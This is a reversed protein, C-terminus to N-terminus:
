HWFYLYCRILRILRSSAKTLCRFVSLQQHLRKVKLSIIPLSVRGADFDRERRVLFRKFMHLINESQGSHKRRWGEPSVPAYSGRAEWLRRRRRWLDRYLDSKSTSLKSKESPYWPEQKKVWVLMSAFIFSLLSFWEVGQVLLGWMDKESGRALDLDSETM